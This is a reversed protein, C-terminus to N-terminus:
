KVKEIWAYRELWRFAAAVKDETWQDKFGQAIHEETQLGTHLRRLNGEWVDTDRWEVSGPADENADRVTQFIMITYVTMILLLDENKPFLDSSMAIRMKNKPFVGLHMQTHEGPLVTFRYRHLQKPRAM